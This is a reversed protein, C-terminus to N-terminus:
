KFNIEVSGQRRVIPLRVVLVGDKIESRTHDVDIPLPLPIRCAFQGYEIELRHVHTVGTIECKREGTITLMEAEAMLKIREPAIGAVDVFVILEADSEYIDVPPQWLSSSSRMRTVNFTRM